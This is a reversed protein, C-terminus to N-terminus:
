SRWQLAQEALMGAAATNGAWTEKFEPDNLASAGKSRSPFVEFMATQSKFDWIEQEIPNRSATSYHSPSAFPQPM